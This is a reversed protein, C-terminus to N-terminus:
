YSLCMRAAMIEMRAVKGRIERMDLPTLNIFHFAFLQKDKRVLIAELHFMAGRSQFYLKYHSGLDVYIAPDAAFILAGSRSFDLLKAVFHSHGNMSFLVVDEEAVLSFVRRFRRRDMTKASEITM